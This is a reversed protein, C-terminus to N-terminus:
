RGAEIQERHRVADGNFCRRCSECVGTIDGHTNLPCLAAADVENFLGSPRYRDFFVVSAGAADTIIEGRDGQYSFFVNGSLPKLSLFEERRTLSRADLSFHVFVRPAHAIKAALRPIRTVLWVTVDPRNVGIWNVSEVAAPFLDGGGNWRLFTLRRRDYEECVRAAFAAPDAECKAKNRVQKKLAANWTSPGSAFYCTRACVATPQCTGAIPFNLSHGTVKNSSLLDCDREDDGEGMVVPLARTKRVVSAVRTTTANAAM